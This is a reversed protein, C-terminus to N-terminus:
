VHKSELYAEAALGILGQPDGGAQRITAQVFKRVTALAVGHALVRDIAMKLGPPLSDVLVRDTRADLSEPQETM